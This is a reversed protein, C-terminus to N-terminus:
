WFYITEKKGFWSIINNEEVSSIELTGAFVVAAAIAVVAATALFRKRFHM